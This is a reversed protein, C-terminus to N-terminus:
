EGIVPPATREDTGFVEDPDGEVLYTPRQHEADESGQGGRGAGAGMAGMGGAGRGAGGAAAAAGPAAGPMGGMGPRAAGSAAGPGAGTGGVAASGGPGFGGRGLKSSYDSSGGGMGGAAMGGVPMAGMGGFGSNSGGGSPVRGTATPPRYGSPRTGSPMGAGTNRGSQLPAPVPTYGGGGSSGGSGGPVSFSGGGGSGGPGTGTGSISGGAYGSAGTGADGGPVSIAASASPMRVGDSGGAGFTPPESFAPQKSAAQYLENDYTTMVRAAEDHAEQSRRYTEMTESINDALDFPNSTVLKKFETRWDFPVPEPMTNKATAAANGEQAIVESALKANQANGDSWTGLSQFFGHAQEAADGEWEQRSKGVGENLRSSLDELVSVLEAYADSIGQIDEARLNETVFQKLQEHEHGPYNMDSASLGELYQVDGSTLRAIQEQSLNEANAHAKLMGIPMSFLGGNAAAEAMAQSTLAAERQSPAVWEDNNASPQPNTM